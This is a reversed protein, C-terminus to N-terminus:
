QKLGQLDEITKHEAMEPIKVKLIKIHVSLALTEQYITHIHTTYCLHACKRKLFACVYICKYILPPCIKLFDLLWRVFLLNWLPSGCIKPVMIVQCWSKYVGLIYTCKYMYYAARNIAHTQPWESAPITPEFRVAPM